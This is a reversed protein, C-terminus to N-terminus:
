FSCRIDDGGFATVVRYGGSKGKNRGAIRLKRCGGTGQMVAGAQPDAALTSVVNAREAENMGTSRSAALYAATEVVTHM